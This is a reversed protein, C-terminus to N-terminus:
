DVVIQNEEGAMGNFAVSSFDGVVEEYTFSISVQIRM